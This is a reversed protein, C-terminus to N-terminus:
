KALSQRLRLAHDLNEHAEDFDRKLRLAETFHVIAEDLRGAQALTNGINNHTVASGPNIRLAESYHFIAEQLRGQRVLVNGYDFHVKDNGPNLRLAEEFHGIAEDFREQGACAVGLNNQVNSNESDSRVNNEKDHKYMESFKKRVGVLLNTDGSLQAGTLIQGFHLKWYAPDDKVRHFVFVNEASNGTTVDGFHHLFIEPRNVLGWNVVLDGEFEYVHNFSAGGSDITRSFYQLIKQTSTSIGFLILWDPFNEERLLYPGLSRVQEAGLATSISLNCCNILTSGIYFQLPENMYDPFAYFTENQAGYKALFDAASGIGTHFPRHIEHLYEYLPFYVLSHPFLYKDKLGPLCYACNSSILLAAVALAILRSKLHIRHIIGAALIATFPFCAVLYRINAIPFDKPTDQLTTCAIIVIQVVVICLVLKMIHRTHVAFIRALIMVAAATIISWPAIGTGLGDELYWRLITIRDAFSGPQPLDPREWLHLAITFPLTAAAFLLCAVLLRSWQKAPLRKREFLLHAVALSILFAICIQFHSYYLLVAAAALGCASRATRRRVFNRYAFFTLLAAFSTISYYRCNRMYLLNEPFFGLFASAYLAIAPHGPFERRLTIYLLVVTLLGICALAFRASFTSKGFVSFSIATLLFQMPPNYDILDKRLGSGNRGALLNRGNWGTFHGTKLFNEAVIAPEAEDSWLAADGLNKFILYGSCLVIIGLLVNHVTCHFRGFLPMKRGAQKAPSPTSRAKSSM